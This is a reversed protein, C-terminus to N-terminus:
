RGARVGPAPRLGKPAAAAQTARLVKAPKSWAAFPAADPDGGL